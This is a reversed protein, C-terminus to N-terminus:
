REIRGGTEKRYVGDVFVYRAREVTPAVGEENATTTTVDVQKRKADFHVDYSSMTPSDSIGTLELAIRLMGTEGPARAQYSVWYDGFDACAEVGSYVHVLPVGAIKVKQFTPQATSGKQSLYAGGIPDLDLYSEAGVRPNPEVVVVRISFDPAFTVGMFEVEGDQDFDAQWGAPSLRGGHVWGAGLATEVRYWTDVRDEVMEVATGVEAVKAATGSPLLKGEKSAASPSEYLYADAGVVWLDAGAEYRTFTYASVEESAEPRSYALVLPDAALAVPLLLVM